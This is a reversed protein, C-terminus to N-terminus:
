WSLSHTNGNDRDNPTLAFKGATHETEKLWKVHGDYYNLNGGENHIAGYRGASIFGGWTNATSTTYNPRRYTADRGEMFEWLVGIEAPRGVQADAVPFAFIPGNLFYTATIGNNISVQAASPCRWIQGNKIYPTLRFVLSRVDNHYVADAAYPAMEDYDSKYQLFSLGLQKLNSQCSSQRAKERAKAFVPFLIAALIAIIAIVVLLEILTFGRRKM